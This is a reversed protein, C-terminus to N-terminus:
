KLCFYFATAIGLMWVLIISGRAPLRNEEQMLPKVIRPILLAAFLSGFGMFLAPSEFLAVFKLSWSGVRQVYDWPFYCTAAFFCLLMLWSLGGKLIKTKKEEGDEGTMKVWIVLALGALLGMGLGPRGERFNWSTLFDSWAYGKGAITELSMGLDDYASTFLYQFFRIGKPLWLLIGPILPLCASGGAFFALFVTFAALVLLIVNSGYGILALVAAALGASLWRGKGETKATQLVGGLYWPILAWLASDTIGGQVVCFLMHWPCTLYLTVCLLKELEGQYLVGALFYTGFAAVIQLFLIGGLRPLSEGAGLRGSLPLCVVLLVALYLWKRKEMWREM